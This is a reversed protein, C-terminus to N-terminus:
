QMADQTAFFMPQNYAVRVSPRQAGDTLTSVENIVFTVFETTSIVRDDDLDARKGLAELVAQTFAGNEWEDREWSVQGLSSSMVVTVQDDFLLDGLYDANAELPSMDAAYANSRCADILVLVRGLKSIGHLKDAVLGLDLAVHAVHALPGELPLAEEIELVDAATGDDPAALGRVPADVAGRAVERELDELRGAHSLYSTTPLPLM